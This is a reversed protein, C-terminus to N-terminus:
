KKYGMFHKSTGRLSMFDVVSLQDNLHYDIRCRHHWICRSGSSILKTISYHGGLLISYPEKWFPHPLNFNERINIMKIRLEKNPESMRSALSYSARVEFLLLSIASSFILVVAIHM